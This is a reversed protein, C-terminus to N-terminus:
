GILNNMVEVRYKAEEAQREIYANMYAELRGDLREIIKGDWYQILKRILKDDPVEIENINTGNYTFLASVTHKTVNKYNYFRLGSVIDVMHDAIRFEEKGECLAMFCNYRFAFKNFEDVIIHWKANGAAEIIPNVEAKIENASDQAQKCANLLANFKKTNAFTTTAIEIKIEM